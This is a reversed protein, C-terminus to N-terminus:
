ISVFISSFFLSLFSLLVVLMMNDFQHQSISDRITVAWAKLKKMKSLLCQLDTPLIAQKAIQGPNPARQLSFYKM